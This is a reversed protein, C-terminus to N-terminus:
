RLHIKGSGDHGQAVLERALDLMQLEVPRAPDIPGGDMDSQFDDAVWEIHTADDVGSWSLDLAIPSLDAHPTNM